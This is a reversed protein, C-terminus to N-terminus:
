SCLVAFKVSKVCNVAFLSVLKELMFMLLGVSHGTVKVISPMSRSRTTITQYLIPSRSEPTPTLSPLRSTRTRLKHAKASRYCATGSKTASSTETGLIPLLPSHLISLACTSAVWWCLYQHCWQFMCHCWWWFCHCWWLDGTHIIGTCYTSFHNRPRLGQFSTPSISLFGHCWCSPPKM